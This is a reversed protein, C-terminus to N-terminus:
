YQSITNEWFCHKNMVERQQHQFMGFTWVDNCQHVVCACTQSAAVRCWQYETNNDFSYICINNFVDTNRQKEVIQCFILCLMIGRLMFYFANWTLPPGVHNFFIYNLFSLSLTFFWPIVFQETCWLFCWKVILVLTGKIATFLTFLMVPQWLAGGRRRSCLAWWTTREQSSGRGTWVARIFFDLIVPLFRVESRQVIAKEIWWSDWNMITGGPTGSPRPM